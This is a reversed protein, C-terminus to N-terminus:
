LLTHCILYVVVLLVFVCYGNMIERKQYTNQQGTLCNTAVYESIISSDYYAKYDFPVAKETFVICFIEQNAFAELSNVSYKKRKSTLVKRNQSNNLFM